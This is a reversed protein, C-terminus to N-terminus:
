RYVYGKEFHNGYYGVTAAKGGQWRVVKVEGPWYGEAFNEGRTLASEYAMKRDKRFKILEQIVDVPSKARAPPAFTPLEATNPNDAPLVVKENLASLPFHSGPEISPLGCEEEDDFFSFDNAQASWFAESDADETSSRTWRTFNPTQPSRPSSPNRDSVSRLPNPPGMELTITQLAFLNRVAHLESTSRRGPSRAHKAPELEVRLRALESEYACERIFQILNAVIQGSTDYCPVDTLTLSRLQPLMGPLLGHTQSNQQARREHCQKELISLRLQENSRDSSHHGKSLDVLSYSGRSDIGNIAQTDRGLGTATVVPNGEEIQSERITVAEPAFVSGRRALPLESPEPKEGVAPSLVLHIMDGALELRTTGESPLEYVPPTADLEHCASDGTLEYANDESSRKPPAAKTVVSHGLRLSTMTKVAHEELIPTLKEAGPLDLQRQSFTLASPSTLSRPHSFVKTTEVAGADLVRLHTSKVLSSLGEVTLHNDAIYLHTIGSDPQDESPLRSVVGHTLRQLYREDFRSDRFEDLLDPNPKIIGVPWDEEPMGSLGSPHNRAVSDVDHSNLFSWQLLTRVAHDTLLNDRIDLSRARVSISSALIEMDEDRLQIGCLKLIQLNAMPRLKSLVVADRAGLTRSLDLFVLNPFVSLADALSRQTTNVCQAAILLRLPFLNSNADQTPHADSCSRLALLSAHDFFPLQSVILSQLNPLKELVDRLWEPNPGDYIESQAPPLHLTHTLQRVTLRAWKM